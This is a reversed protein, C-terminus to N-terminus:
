GCEEGGRSLRGGVWGVSGEEVLGVMVMLLVRVVRRYSGGGGLHFLM